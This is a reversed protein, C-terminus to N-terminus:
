CPMSVHYTSHIEDYFNKFLRFMCFSVAFDFLCIIFLAISCVNFIGSGCLGSSDDGDSSLQITADALVPLSLLRRLSRSANSYEGILGSSSTSNLTDNLEPRVPSLPLEEV